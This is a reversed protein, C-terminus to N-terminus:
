SHTIEIARDELESTRKETMNMRDNLKGLSNKLIKTNWTTLVITEM